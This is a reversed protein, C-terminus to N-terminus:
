RFTGHPLREVIEQFLCTCKCHWTDYSMRMFISIDLNLDITLPRFTPIPDHTPVPYPFQHIPSPIFCQSMKLSQSVSNSGLRHNRFKVFNKQVCNLFNFQFKKKRVGTKAMASARNIRVSLVKGTVASAGMKYHGNIATTRSARSKPQQRGAAQAADTTKFFPTRIIPLAGTGESM